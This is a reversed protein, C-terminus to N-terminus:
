AESTIKRIHNDTEEITVKVYDDRLYQEINETWEMFCYKGSYLYDEFGIQYLDEATEIRYFDFHYVIDGGNTLYENIISFTPSIATTEVDLIKCIQKIFTTKGVGMPGYFGFVREQPFCQLLEAAITPLSDENEAIWVRKNSVMRSLNAM